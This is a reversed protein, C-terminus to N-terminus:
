ECAKADMSNGLWPPSGGAEVTIWEVPEPLM